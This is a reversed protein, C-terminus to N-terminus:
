ASASISMAGSSFSGSREPGSFEAAVMDASGDRSANDVVLIEAASSEQEVSSSRGAPVGRDPLLACEDRLSTLCERLLDRTNFSVVISVACDYSAFCGSTHDGTATSRERHRLYLPGCDPPASGISRSRRDM